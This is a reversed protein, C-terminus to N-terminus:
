VGVRTCDASLGAKFRIPVSIGFLTFSISVDIHDSPQSVSSRSRASQPAYLPYRIGSPM